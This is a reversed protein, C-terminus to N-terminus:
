GALNGISESVILPYPKRNFSHEKQQELVISWCKGLQVGTYSSIIAGFLIIGVGYWGILM